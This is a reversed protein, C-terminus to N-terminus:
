SLIKAHHLLHGTLSDVFWSGAKELWRKLRPCLVVLPPQWCSKTRSLTINENLWPKVPRYTPPLWCVRREGIGGGVLWIWGDDRLRLLTESSPLLHDDAACPTPAPPIPFVGRTPSSPGTAMLFSCFTTRHQTDLDFLLHDAEHGRWHWM